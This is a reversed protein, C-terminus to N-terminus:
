PLCRAGKSASTVLRAYKALVGDSYRPAPARFQARRRALEEPSIHLELRGAEIDIEISDGDEILAIASTSDCGM